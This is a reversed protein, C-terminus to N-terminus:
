VVIIPIIVLMKSAAIFAIAPTTPFEYARIASAISDADSTSVDIITKVPHLIARRGASSVWGYPCPFASGKAPITTAAASKIAAITIIM